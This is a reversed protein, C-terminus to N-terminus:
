TVDAAIAADEFDRSYLAFVSSLRACFWQISLPQVSTRVEMTKRPVMVAPLPKVVEGGDGNWTHRAINFDELFASGVDDTRRRSSGAWGDVLTSLDESSNKSKSSMLFWLEQRFLSTSLKPSPVARLEIDATAEHKFLEMASEVSHDVSRDSSIIVYMIKFLDSHLIYTQHTHPNFPINIAPWFSLTAKGLHSDEAQCAPPRHNQQM